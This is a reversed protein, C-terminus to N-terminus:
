SVKRKTEAAPGSWNEKVPRGRGKKEEPEEKKPEEVKLPERKGFLRVLTQVGPGHGEFGNSVGKELDYVTYSYTVNNFTYRLETDAKIEEHSNCVARHIQNEMGDVLALVFKLPPKLLLDYMKAGYKFQDMCSLKELGLANQETIWWSHKLPCQGDKFGGELFSVTIRPRRFLWCGKCVWASAVHLANSKVKSFFNPYPDDHQWSDGCPTGCWHCLYRGKPEYNVVLTKAYLTTATLM